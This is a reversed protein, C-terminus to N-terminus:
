LNPPLSDPIDNDGKDDDRESDGENRKWDEGEDHIKKFKTTMILQTTLMCPHILPCQLCSVVMKRKLGGQMIGCFSGFCSIAKSEVEVKQFSQRKQMGSVANKLDSMIGDLEKVSSDAAWSIHNHSSERKILVDYGVVGMVFISLIIIPTFFYFSLHSGVILPLSIVSLAALSMMFLLFVRSLSVLKKKSITAEMKCDKAAKQSEMLENLVDEPGIGNM